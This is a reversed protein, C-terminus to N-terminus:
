PEQDSKNVMSGHRARKMQNQHADRKLFVIHLPDSDTLNIQLQQLSPHPDRYAKM